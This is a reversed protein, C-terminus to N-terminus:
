NASAQCFSEEYTDGLLHSPLGMYGSITPLILIPAISSCTFFLFFSFQGISIQHKASSIIILSTDLVEKSTNGINKM